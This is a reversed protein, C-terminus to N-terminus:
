SLAPLVARLQEQRALMEGADVEHDHGLVHLLGHVVLTRMEDLAPVGADGAQRAAQAHCVVVDGLQRELGAPLEDRGDVPFALVDTVEDLGRHEANLAQMEREGVFAVGLASPGAVGEAELVAIVLDRLAREDVGAADAGEVTLDLSASTM